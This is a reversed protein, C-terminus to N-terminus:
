RIFNPFPSYDFDPGLIMSAAAKLQPHDERARSRGHAQSNWEIGAICERVMDKTLRNLVVKLLGFRHDAIDFSGSRVYARVALEAAEHALRHQDLLEVWKGFDGPTCRAWQFAEDAKMRALQKHMDGVAFWGLVKTPDKAIFDELPSKTEDTLSSYIRPRHAIFEVALSLADPEMSIKSLTKGDREILNLGEEPNRDYAFCLVQYNIIRNARCREDTGAFVIHWLSKFVSRRVAPVLNGFFKAELYRRLSQDDVFHDKKAEVDETIADFVKKTMLAPKILVAELAARIDARVVEPTPKHLEYAATLTPHAALHRHKQLMALALHEPEELLKTRKKIEDLLWVEWESSKSKSSRHKEVEQLLAAAAADAYTARLEELKFLLDCVVVSWLMVTASRYNGAAYSSYVERFYDRTRADRIQDSMADISFDSM